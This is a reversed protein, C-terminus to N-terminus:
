EAPPSHTSAHELIARRSAEKAEAADRIADALKAPESSGPETNNAQQETTRAIYVKTADALEAWLRDCEGCGLRMGKHEDWRLLIM